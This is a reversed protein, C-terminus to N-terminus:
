TAPARTFAGKSGHCAASIRDQLQHPLGGDDTEILEVGRGPHFDIYFKLIKVRSARNFVPRGQGHDLGGFGRAFQGRPLRDDLGGAAVGADAQGHYAGDLAVPQEQGHGLGGGLLAFPDEPRQPGFDQEGRGVQAGVAGDLFYVAHGPFVRCGVEQHVLEVVGVVGSGMLARGLLDPLLGFAPDGVHDDGHPGGAGEHAQGPIELGITRIDPHHPHLRIQPM